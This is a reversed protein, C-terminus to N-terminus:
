LINYCMLRDQERLYLKGGVVVPHAWSKDEQYEPMFVGKEKFGTTTAEILMVHGSQYRFILHGDVYLVAASGSAKAPPRIDGGWVVDGSAMDVCIPFGNNHKHGCYIHGDLLVMGGHHNELQKPPLFYQEEAKVGGNGDSSLTLLAAGTGYGTSVFVDDGSVIPTPINATTNAIDSYGWLFKGDSARVGIAGRGVITVYQKVGGGNSIVISSYGAGNKMSKGNSATEGGFEPVASAWVEEGTTKNLAVIM